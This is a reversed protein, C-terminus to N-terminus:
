NWLRNPGLQLGFYPTPPCVPLVIWCKFTSVVQKGKSPGSWVSLSFLVYARDKSLSHKLQVSASHRQIPIFIFSSCFFGTSCLALMMLCTAEATRDMIETVELALLTTIHSELNLKQM